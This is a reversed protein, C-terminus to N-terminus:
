FHGRQDLLFRPLRNWVNRIQERANVDQLTNGAMWTKKVTIKSTPMNQQDPWGLEGSDSITRRLQHFTTSHKGVLQSLARRTGRSPLSWLWLWVPESVCDSPLHPLSSGSSFTCPYFLLFQLLPGWSTTSSIIHVVAPNVSHKGSHAPEARRLSLYSTGNVLQRLMKHSKKRGVLLPLSLHIVPM